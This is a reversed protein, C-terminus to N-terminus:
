SKNFINVCVQYCSNDCEYTNYKHIHIISTQSLNEPSFYSVENSKNNFLVVFDYDNNHDYENPNGCYIYKACM